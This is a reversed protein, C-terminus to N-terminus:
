VIAFDAYTVLPKTALTAFLIKAAAGTGDPDYYLQGTASNYIIYDDADGAVATAATAGTKFESASLSPGIAAFVIDDLRIVDDVLSFDTITDVNAAGPATNFVFADAGAGGTLSDNGLGGALVDNGADGKLINAATNGTLSNALTNGTGSIAATGTLTLNEVNVSLTFTVSSQVSDTGASAAEVVTDGAGVVYTDNGALGTLVNAGGNGTLVNNLANGTGNIAATGTLILNEVNAGLTYTFGAQVTDTGGGAGEVVTDLADVVYIDNGAGGTLMNAAANGTLTNDLTNGTGNFAGSGTIILNEVNAGLTYTFGAKVTDIGANAAEVVTDLADIVYTDDGLGGSLKNAATNGTLTNALGNGTGNIAATGTLILNEVNAALTVNFAAKVTDIGANAAETVTDLADIVYTDNGAGGSLTNAAANGTLSNNLANGTGSYAGSGTLMLNEVNAALTVNFAAKVTDTGEGANEVVTDTADIIYTDNGIGGTLLDAGLGGDLTDDGGQGYLKDGVTTPLHQGAITHTPDILDNGATGYITAPYPTFVGTLFNYEGDAFVAREIHTLTDTGQGTLTFPGAGSAPSITYTLFDNKYYVTDTGAGGDIKDNGNGATISDNGGGLTLTNGGSFLTVAAAQTGLESALDLVGADTLTLKIQTSLKAADTSYRITDFAEFQAVKGSLSNTQLYLTEITQIDLTAMSLSLGSAGFTLTDTGIGGYIGGSTVKDVTILDNGDGGDIQTSTAVTNIDSITDNGANATFRDAGDGGILTDAVASGILFDAGKGTTIRNGGAAAVIKLGQTGLEDSLDITGADALVFSMQLPTAGSGKITDFAEFQAIRGTIQTTYAGLIEVGTITLNLLSVEAATNAFYLGDTGAGGDVIGSAVFENLNIGDDGDGGYIKTTGSLVNIDTITDNGTGGDIYDNGDGGNIVDNGDQGYLTDNGIEGYMRDNGTGGELYDDGTYFTAAESPNINFGHDGYMTDNGAGGVLSDNYSDGYLTDNGDGGSIADYGGDSGTWGGNGTRPHYDDGSIVDNGAGGVLEDDGYDGMLYDNGNDGYLHDAGHAGSLDDDGDGGYLTDNGDSGYIEDKGGNGKIVDDGYSTSLRDDGDGSILTVSDYSYANYGIDVAQQGLQASLDLTGSTDSFYIQAQQALDAPNSSYRISTLAELQAMTATLSYNQTLVNEIGSVSMNQIEIYGSYVVLTDTGDGGALAGTTTKDFHSGGFYIFDDGGGGDITAVIDSASMNTDYISDNGEGGLLTDNGDVDYILDDGYGADVYDNGYGGYLSDNGIFGYLFDNGAAGDVLDDGASADLTDQDSGGVLHDNGAGSMVYNTGSGYTAIYAAQDNLQGLLNISGSDMLTISVQSTLTADNTSYRITGFSEFQDRYGYLAMPANLREFGNITFSTLAVAYDNNAVYFELWDTESGGYLEGGGIASSVYVSDNGPGADIYTNDGFPSYLDDDTIYDDGADGYIRDSGDSDYFVDNGSGGELWDNGPGGYIFDNGNNGLLHDGGGNGELTDDGGQGDATESSSTGIFHDNGSTAGSGPTWTGM